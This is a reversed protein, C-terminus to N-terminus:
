SWGDDSGLQQLAIRVAKFLCICTPVGRSWKIGTAHRKAVLSLDFFGFRLVIRARGFKRATSSTALVSRIGLVGALSVRPQAGHLNDKGLEVIACKLCMSVKYCTSTCRVVLLREGSQAQLLDFGALGKFGCSAGWNVICAFLM